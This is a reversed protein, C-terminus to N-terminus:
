QFIENFKAKLDRGHKEIYDLDVPIHSVADLAPQGAPPAIDVRSSHIGSEAIMAQAARSIM